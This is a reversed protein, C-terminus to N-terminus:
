LRRYLCFVKTAVHEEVAGPSRGRLGEDRSLSRFSLPACGTVTFSTDGLRTGARVTMQCIPKVTSGAAPEVPVVGGLSVTASEFFSLFPFSTTM